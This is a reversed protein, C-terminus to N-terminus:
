TCFVEVYVTTSATIPVLTAGLLSLVAGSYVTGSMATTSIASTYPTYQQTALTGVPSVVSTNFTRITSCGVATYSFSWAGNSATTIPGSTIHKVGTILGTGSYETVSSVGTAGTAGAAGVPIGFNLTPITSSGTITLTPTAGAALPTQTGAILGTLFPNCTQGTNITQATVAQGAPCSVQMAGKITRPTHVFFAAAVALVIGAFISKGKM